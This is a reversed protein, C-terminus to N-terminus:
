KYGKEYLDVRMKMLYNRVTETMKTDKTKFHHSDNHRLHDICVVKSQYQKYGARYLEAYFAVNPIAIKPYM